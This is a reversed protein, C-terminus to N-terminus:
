TRLWPEKVAALLDAQELLINLLRDRRITLRATIDAPSFTFVSLFDGLNYLTICLICTQPVLDWALRLHGQQQSGEQVYHASLEGLSCSLLPEKFYIFLLGVHAFHSQKRKAFKM